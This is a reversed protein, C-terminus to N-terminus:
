HSLSQNSLWKMLTIKKNNIFKSVENNYVYIWSWHGDYEYPTGDEKKYLGSTDIVNDFLSLHVNKAGADILRNYTPVVFDNVPVITDTKAAVFWIPVDKMRQIDRNSILTDRLAECTPFAAAFFRPFRQIMRMTMYGGNSNGGIYIRKLDIDKNQAVYNTILNMLAGEYKSSGNEERSGDMWYTPTQPALVYAGGFYSQISSSSFNAAKNAAIPITPDTGGEGGGHLWIILPNKQHDKTPKFDAYTLTIDGYTSKGTSFEDVLNISGGSYTDIILGSIKGRPTVIDKQQTIVYKSHIWSNTFSDIDFNMPSGLSISPGIEMEFVVYNGSKRSPNGKKDAVYANTVTRYGKELLPNALRNDVRTVHVKFTHTTVSKVPISRGLNVIVKTIMAGWDEIETVTQYSPPKPKVEKALAEVRFSFITGFVITCLLFLKFFKKMKISM